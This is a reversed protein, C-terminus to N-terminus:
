KITYNRKTNAKYLKIYSFYCLIILSTNKILIKSMDVTVQHHPIIHKIYEIDTLNDQCINQMKYFSYM